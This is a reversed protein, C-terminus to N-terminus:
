AMAVNSGDIVIPRLNGKAKSPGADSNYSNSGYQSWDSQFVSTASPLSSSSSSVEPRQIDQVSENNTIDPPMATGRSVFTHDLFLQM